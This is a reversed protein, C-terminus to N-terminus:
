KMDFGDWDHRNRHFASHLTSSALDKWTDTDFAMKTVSSTVVKDLPNQIFYNIFASLSPEHGFLFVTDWANDLYLALKLITPFDPLYLKDKVQVQSSPIHMQEAFIQATDYARLAPSTLFMDPKVGEKRLIDAITKADSKGRKKLPRDMDSLSIDNWSSKAHRVIYLTKM